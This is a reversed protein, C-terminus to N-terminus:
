LIKKFILISKYVIGPTLLAPIFILYYSIYKKRYPFFYFIILMIEKIDYWGRFLKLNIIHGLDGKKCSLIAKKQINKPYGFKLLSDSFEVIKLHAYFYFEIGMIRNKGKRSELLSQQQMEILPTSIILSKGVNLLSRAVYMHIWCTDYFVKTDIENWKSVNFICSSILSNAFNIRIM